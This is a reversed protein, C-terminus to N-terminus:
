RKLDPRNSSPVHTDTARSAWDTSCPVRLGLTTPELGVNPAFKKWKKKLLFVHFYKHCQQAVSFIGFQNIKCFTRGFVDTLSWKKKCFILMKLLSYVHMDNPSKHQCREASFAPFNADAVTVWLEWLREWPKQLQTPYNQRCRAMRNSTSSSHKMWVMSLVGHVFCVTKDMTNWGHVHIWLKEGNFTCLVQRQIWPRLHFWIDCGQFLIAKAAKLLYAVMPRKGRVCSCTESLTEKVAAM